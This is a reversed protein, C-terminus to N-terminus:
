CFVASFHMSFCVRKLTNRVGLGVFPPSLKIKYYTRISVRSFANLNLDTFSLATLRCPKRSRLLIILLYKREAAGTEYWRSNYVAEGVGMSSTMIHDGFNCFFYTQVLGFVLFSSFPAVLTLNRMIMLNFGAACIVLSSSMLNFFISLTSISELLEVSRILERHTNVLQVLEKKFTDSSNRADNKVMRKIDNEIVLFQIQIFTCSTFLLGDPGYVSFVAVWAAWLQFMYVIPWVRIDFEDFPYIVMFPLILKVEGTTYYHTAIILLPGVAFALYGILFLCLLQKFITFLLKVWKGTEEELEEDVEVAKSLFKRLLNILENVLHMYRLLCYVKVDGSLCLVICPIMYTVETMTPKSDVVLGQFFWAGVGCLQVNFMVMHISYWWNKRLRQLMTKNRGDNDLSLGNLKLLFNIRDLCKEFKLLM